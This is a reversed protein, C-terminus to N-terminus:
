CGAAFANIFDIFDTGDITGDATIDAAPDTAADGIAFSNIFTIFDSGDVTGDGTVDAPCAPTDGCTLSTGVSAAFAAAAASLTADDASQGLIIYLPQSPAIQPNNAWFRLTLLYVGPEAPSAPPSAQSLLTYNYHFHYLGSASTTLGFGPVLADTTPTLRSNSPPGLRIRLRPEAITAFDTGNWVRLASTIDFGVQTSAPLAGPEADFGPDNITDFDGLRTVFVNHPFEAQLSCPSVWGTEIRGGNVRLIVDSQHLQALAAPACSLTICLAATQPLLCRQDATRSRNV